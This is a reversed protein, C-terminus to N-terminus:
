WWSTYRVEYGEAISLRAASLIASVNQNVRHQDNEAGFFFGVTHTLMGNAADGEFKDLLEPTLVLDECNFEEAPIGSERQMWGHIESEKRGYWVEKPETESPKKKMVYCDLGMSIGRIRLERRQQHHSFHVRIQGTLSFYKHVM